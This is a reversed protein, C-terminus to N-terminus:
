FSEYLTLVRPDKREFHKSIPTSDKAPHGLPFVAVPKVHDPINFLESAKKADFSGVWCAGLGQDHIALMLYTAVIAADIDGKGENDYSNVWAEAANQCVVIACPANFTYRTCQALKEMSEKTMLVLYRQPQNNCATPVDKVMELIREIEEKTVPTPEFKRVSYRDKLLQSFEM